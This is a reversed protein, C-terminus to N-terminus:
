GGAICAGHVQAIVPKPIDRWSPVDGHVGRDGTGAASRGGKEPTIGTCRPWTTTSPTSTANLTGIDHGASFHKGNYLVIVKM